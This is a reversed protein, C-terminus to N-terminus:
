NRYACGHRSARAPLPAILRMAARTDLVGPVCSTASRRAVMNARNMMRTPYALSDHHPCPLAKGAGQELRRDLMEVWTDFIAM